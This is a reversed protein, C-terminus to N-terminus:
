QIFDGKVLSSTRAGNQDANGDWNANGEVVLKAAITVAHLLVLSALM